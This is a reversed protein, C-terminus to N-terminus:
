WNMETSGLRDKYPRWQLRRTTHEGGSCKFKIVAGKGWVNKGDRSYYDFTKVNVAECILGDSTRFGRAHVVTTPDGCWTTQMEKPIGAANASGTCALVFAAMIITSRM